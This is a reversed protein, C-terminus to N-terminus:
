VSSEDGDKPLWVEVNSRVRSRTKIKKSVKGDYCSRSVEMDGRKFWVSVYDEEHPM